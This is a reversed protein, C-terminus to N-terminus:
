LVVIKTYYAWLGLGIFCKATFDLINMAINKYSESFMYVIGYLSWVVLYVGFLAYNAFSYLPKVFSRFIIWFMAFFAVFGLIMATFRDLWKEEGAYGTYLMIYNLGIISLITVLHISRKSNQGLVLCLALLMMPTTIAWDIYRTKTIDSWDMPGVGRENAKEIQSIFVSYFYGAVISICTELNLVHRVSPIQTRMAEVFTITATTLLLIYTVVFSFKVYYHVAPETKKDSESIIKKGTNGPIVSAKSVEPITDKKTDNVHIQDEFNTFLAQSM